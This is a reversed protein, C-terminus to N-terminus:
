LRLIRELDQLIQDVAMDLQKDSVTLPDRVPKPTDGTFPLGSHTQKANSRLVRNGHVSNSSIEWTDFGVKKGRISDVTEGTAVLPTNGLGQRIQSNDGVRIPAELTSKKLPALRGGSADLGSKIRHRYDTAM